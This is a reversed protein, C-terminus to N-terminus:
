KIGREHKVKEYAANIETARLESRRKMEAPVDGLKDPHYQSMLKRYAHKLTREDADRTIGLVAYPDPENTVRNPAGRGHDGYSQQTNSYTNSRAGGYAYGKMASIAALEQESVNLQHCLTRLLSLKAAALAGEAYIIDLLMDLLLFALDRRGRCWTRLEAISERVEFGDQKGLTFRGIAHQRQAADLQLRGMLAETANIESQSVFGDSKCLAGALAFLPEIFSRPAAKRFSGFQMTNADFMHGIAIGLVIGFPQGKFLFLGVLGGIIKGIFNM